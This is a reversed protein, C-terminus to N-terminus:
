NQLTLNSKSNVTLHDCHALLCTWEKLKLYLFKVLCISKYFYHSLPAYQIVYGKDSTLLITYCNEHQDVM